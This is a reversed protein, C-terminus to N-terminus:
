FKIGDLWDYMSEMKSEEATEEEIFKVEINELIKKTEKNKTTIEFICNNVEEGDLVTVVLYQLENPVFCVVENYLGSAGLTTISNYIVVKNGETDYMYVLAGVISDVVGQGVFNKEANFTSVVLSDFGTTFKFSGYDNVYEDEVIIDPFVIIEDYISLSSKYDLDNEELNFVELYNEIANEMKSQPEAHAVVSFLTMVIAAIMTVRIWQKFLYKAVKRVM